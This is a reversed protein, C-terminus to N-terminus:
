VVAILYDYAVEGIFNFLKWRPTTLSVVYTGVIPMFTKGPQELPYQHQM